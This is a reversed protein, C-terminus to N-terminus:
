EWTIRPARGLKVPGLFMQGGQITFATKIEPKGDVGTKALFTLAIRALGADSARMQGSQVLATLIQDYGQIAGSFSGTPQLEQDLAITGTATADLAGWKLRLNDLEIAGGTDRWAAVADALKGSRITGKETAAFDLEDITNGFPAIAAPLKIQSAEVALAMVPDAHERSPRPPVTLTAHASGVLVPAGAEVTTARLSLWLTWGDEPKVSVVGDATQAILKAPTSGGAASFDATFGEPAALRWDAFNWPRATGYLAPIHLEPSPTIAGDRLAASGLDVRFAVPYGSVRMKQWSLDIKEARQSLAWDAIGAEIRHAVLFWYATYSGGVALLAALILLGLRTSRPM